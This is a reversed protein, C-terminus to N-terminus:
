KKAGGPARKQLLFLIAHLEEESLKDLACMIDTLLAIRGEREVESVEEVDDSHEAADGAREQVFTSTLSDEDEIEAGEADPMNVQKYSSIVEALVKGQKTPKAKVTISNDKVITVNCGFLRCSLKRHVLAWEENTECGLKYPIIVHIDPTNKCFAYLANVMADFNMGAHRKASGSTMDCFLNLVGQTGDESITVVQFMGLLTIADNDECVAEYEERIFPWTASVERSIGDRYRGYCNVPQCVLGNQNSPMLSGETVELLEGRCAQFVSIYYKGVTFIREKQGLAAAHGVMPRVQFRLNASGDSAIFNLSSAVNSEPELSTGTNQRINARIIQARDIELYPGYDSFIIRNYGTALELGSHSYLTTESEGEVKFRHPVIQPYVSCILYDSLELPLPKGNYESYLYDIYSTFSREIQPVYEM